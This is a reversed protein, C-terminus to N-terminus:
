VSAALNAAAWDLDVLNAATSDVSNAAVTYLRPRLRPPLRFFFICIDVTCCVCIYLTYFIYFLNVYVSDSLIWFKRSIVRFTSAFSISCSINWM